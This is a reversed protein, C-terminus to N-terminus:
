EPSDNQSDHGECVVTVIGVRCDLGFVQGRRCYDARILSVIRLSISESNDLATEQLVKGASTDRVTDLIQVASLSQLDAKSIELHITRERAQPGLTLDERAESLKSLM